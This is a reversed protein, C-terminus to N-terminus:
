FMNYSDDQREYIDEMGEIIYLMTLCMYIDM